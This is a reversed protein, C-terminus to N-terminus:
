LEKLQVGKEYGMSPRLYMSNANLENSPWLEISALCEASTVNARKALNKIKARCPYICIESHACKVFTIYGARPSSFSGVYEQFPFSEALSIIYSDTTLLVIIFLKRRNIQQKTKM